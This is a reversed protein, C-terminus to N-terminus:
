WATHACGCTFYVLSVLACAHMHHQCSGARLRMTQALRLSNSALVLSECVFGKRECLHGCGISHVAVGGGWIHDPGCVM